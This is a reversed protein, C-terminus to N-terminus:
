DHYIVTTTEIIEISQTNWLRLGWVIAAALAVALVVICGRLLFKKRRHYRELMDQDLTELFGQALERPDGLYDSVEQVTADPMGQVFDEAMRRTQSLFSKRLSNPCDLLRELTRFYRGMSVNEM